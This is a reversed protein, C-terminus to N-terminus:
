WMPCHLALSEAIDNAQNEAQGLSQVMPHERMPFLIHSDLGKEGTTLDFCVKGRDGAEVGWGWGGTWVVTYLFGFAIRSVDSLLVKFCHLFEQPQFVNHITIGSVGESRAVQLVTLMWKRQTKHFYLFRVSMAIPLRCPTSERGGRGM